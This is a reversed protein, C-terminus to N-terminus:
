RKSPTLGPVTDKMSNELRIDRILRRRAPLTSSVVPAMRDTAQM